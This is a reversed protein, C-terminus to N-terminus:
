KDKQFPKKQPAKPLPQKKTSKLNEVKWTKALGPLSRSLGEPDFVAKHAPSGSPQELRCCHSSYGKKYFEARFIKPKKQKKRVQFFFLGEPYKTLWNKNNFNNLAKSFSTVKVAQYILLYIIFINKM